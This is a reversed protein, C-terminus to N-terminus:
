RLERHLYDRWMATLGATDLGLVSRLAADQSREGAARYLRVLADEGYRDAIMRCALWAEAYAQPLRAADAFEAPGPLRRPLHGATVEARLERAASRVPVKTDRYGVYDALGEILWLPTRGDRAGGTAIHTLEHTLVVKRGLANLRSFTGPAIVIRDEGSDGSVALAAISGADGLPDGDPVLAAAQVDDAPVLAVARRAWREGLVETVVPVAADLRDAIERLLPSSGIVLSHEGRVVDLPGSDWIDAEDRLGHATGDGVLRWAGGRRAFTLYRTRTVERRDHGKLRYRLTVELVAGDRGAAVPVPSALEERWGSLPLRTLNDFVTAQANRFPAPAATVTALFAIRDGDRVARARGDLIQRVAQADPRPPAPAATADAAPAPSGGDRLVAWLGGAALLLVAVLASVVLVPRRVTRRGTGNASTEPGGDM